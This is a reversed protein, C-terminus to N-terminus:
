LQYRILSYFKETIEGVFDHYDSNPKFDKLLMDRLRLYARPNTFSNYSRLKQIWQEVGKQGGLEIAFNKVISDRIQRPSKDDKYDLTNDVNAMVIRSFMRQSYLYLSQYGEKTIIDNVTVLGGGFLAAGVRKKISFELRLNNGLYPNYKKSEKEKDYGRFTANQTKVYITNLEQVVKGAHKIRIISPQYISPPYITPIDFNLDIGGIYFYRFDIGLGDSMLNVWDNFEHHYLRNVISGHYSKSASGTISLSDTTGIVVMDQYSFKIYGRELRNSYINDAKDLMEKLFALSFNDKKYLNISDIM